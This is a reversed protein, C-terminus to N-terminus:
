ILFTKVSLFTPLLSLIFHHVAAKMVHVMFELAVIESPCTQHSNSFLLLMPLTTSRPDIISSSLIDQVAACVISTWAREIHQLDEKSITQSSTVFRCVLRTQAAKAAESGVTARERRLYHKLSEEFAGSRLITSVKSGSTLPSEALKVILNRIAPKIQLIDAISDETQITARTRKFLEALSEISDSHAGDQSQAQNLIAFWAKSRYELPGHFLVLRASRGCLNVFDRILHLGTTEQALRMADLATLAQSLAFSILASAFTTAPNNIANLLMQRKANRKRTSAPEDDDDDSDSLDIEDDATEADAQSPVLLPDALDDIEEDQDSQEDDVAGLIRKEDVVKTTDAGWLAPPAAATNTTSAKSTSLVDPLQSADKRVLQLFHRSLCHCCAILTVFSTSARHPYSLM